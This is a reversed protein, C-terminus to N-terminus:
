VGEAEYTTSNGDSGSKMWHRLRVGTSHVGNRAEAAFLAVAEATLPTITGVVFLWSWPRARRDFWRSPTLGRWRM